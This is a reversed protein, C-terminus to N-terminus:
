EVSVMFYYVPQGGNIVNYEVNPFRNQLRECLANAAAEDTDEGYLITVISGSHKKILRRTVRYAVDVSDNDVLTIKGDEMGLIQGKKIREGSMESDRAAFTVQATHVGEAAKMMQLHNEEPSLAEDFSLMATIGQPITKTSLVSVGRDALNVTQEAAMIINKNNPLVFVHRAPTAEVANLIDDTSPNMTQGGSVVQDAGLERFLTCLGEGAAVAVFGYEKEPEARKPIETEAQVTQATETNETPVDSLNQIQIEHLSGCLLAAQLVSHPEDSHVGVSIEQATEEVSVEGGVAELAAKLKVAGSQAGQAKRIKFSLAYAYQPQTCEASEATQAGDATIMVGDLLYSKMGELIYLLGRGGADVVGAEKLVPLMEPTEALAKEAADCLIQLVKKYDTEGSEVAAASALRIVTLITGETPKMVAKYASASGMQFAAALQAGDATELGKLGKQLGRFILSLIVGSNGRAGRLLAGATKKAVSAVDAEGLVQLERSAAGVTMSMNTGTDGDPVPFVNLADVEKRHNEIHNAGSIVANKLLEGTLM